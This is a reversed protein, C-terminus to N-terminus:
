KRRLQRPDIIADRPKWPNMRLDPPGMAGDPSLVQGWSYGTAKSYELVNWAGDTGEFFNPVMLEVLMAHDGPGPGIRMKTIKDNAEKTYEGFNSKTHLHAGLLPDSGAPLDPFDGCGTNTGVCELRKGDKTKIVGTEITKHRKERLLKREDLSEAIQVESSGVDGSPIKDPDYVGGGAATVEPLQAGAGSNPRLAQNQGGGVSAQKAAMGQSSQKGNNVGIVLARGPQNTRVATGGDKKTDYKATYTKGGQTYTCTGHGSGASTGSCAAFGSPDTLSLSNNLVYSYPNLSQTNEPFQFVPDVSMFRGIEPDYVRGNM